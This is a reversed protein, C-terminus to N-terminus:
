PREPPPPAFGGAPPPPPPNKKFREHLELLKKMQADDLVDDMKMFTEEFLGDAEQKIRDRLADAKPRAEDLIRRVEASQEPNLKLEKELTSHIKAAIDHPEKRMHNFQAIRYINMFVAGAAFGILFVILIYAYRRM